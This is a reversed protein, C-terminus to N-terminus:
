KATLINISPGFKASIRGITISINQWLFLFDVKDHLCLYADLTLVNLILRFHMHYLEIINHLNLKALGLM